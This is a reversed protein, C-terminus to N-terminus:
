DNEDGEEDDDSAGKRSAVAVAGYKSSAQLAFRLASPKKRDDDEDDGAGPAPPDSGDKRSATAVTGEGATSYALLMDGTFEQWGEDPKTRAAERLRAMQAESLKAKPAKEKLAADFATVREGEKAAIAAKAEMDAIRTNATKLAEEAKEARTVATQLEKDLKGVQTALAVAESEPAKVKKDKDQEEDTKEDKDMTMERRRSALALVQTGEYGPKLEDTFLLGAGRPDLGRLIRHAKGKHAKKRHDYFPKYDSNPGFEHGCESCTAQAFGMEMSGALKQRKHSRAIAEVEEPYRWQWLLGEGGFFAGDDQDTVRCPSTFAGLALHFRHLLDIGKGPLEDAVALLEDRPIFDGNKSAEDVKGFTFSIRRDPDQGATAIEEGLTVVGPIRAFEAM